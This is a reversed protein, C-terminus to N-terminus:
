LIRTFSIGIYDTSSFFSFTTVASFIMRAVPRRGLYGSIGPAVSYPIVLSSMKERGYGGPFVRQIPAEYTERSHAPKRWPTPKSDATM